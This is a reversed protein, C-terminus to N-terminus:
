TVLYFLPFLYIWVVDVFHWYLGANELRIYDDKHIRGRSTFLVMSLLLVIGAIIHVAHLGTMVYYLGYFMIQAQPRALMEVSGPYVGHSIKETWEFYKVALFVLGLLVTLGQFVLSMNKAGKRVYSIALAMTLSSTLLVVTNVSGKFVDLELAAEHFQGSYKSRFVCYLMFMGGFLLLETFLFLWMGLKAKRDTAKNSSM